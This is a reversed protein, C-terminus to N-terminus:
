AYKRHIWAGVGVRKMETLSSLGYTAHASRLRASQSLQNANYPAKASVTRMTFDENDHELTSILKELAEVQRFSLHSSRANQNKTTEVERSTMQLPSM